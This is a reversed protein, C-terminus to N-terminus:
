VPTVVMSSPPLSMKLPVALMAPESTVISAPTSSMEPAEVVTSRGASLPSPAPVTTSPEFVSTAFPPAKAPVIAPLPAMSTATLPM